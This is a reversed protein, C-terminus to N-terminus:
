SLPFCQPFRCETMHFFEINCFTKFAWLAGSTVITWARYNQTNDQAECHFTVGLRLRYIGCNELCIEVDSEFIQPLYLMMFPTSTNPETLHSQYIDTVM